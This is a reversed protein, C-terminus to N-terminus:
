EKLFGLEWSGGTEHSKFLSSEVQFAKRKVDMEKRVTRNLATKEVGAKSTWKNEEYSMDPYIYNIDIVIYM